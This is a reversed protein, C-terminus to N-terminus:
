ICYMNWDACVPTMFYYLWRVYFPRISISVNWPSQVHTCNQSWYAGRHRLVYKMSKKPLLNSIQKLIKVQGGSCMHKQTNRFVTYKGALSYPEKDTLFWKGLWVDSEWVTKTRQFAKTESNSNPACRIRRSRRCAGHEWISVLFHVVLLGCGTRGLGTTTEWRRQGWQVVIDKTSPNLFQLISSLQLQITCSLLLALWKPYCCTFHMFIHRLCECM